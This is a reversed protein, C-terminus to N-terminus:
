RLDFSVPLTRLGWALFPRWAVEGAPRPNALRRATLHLGEAMQARALHQGICVHAGRGFALHRSTDERKPDFGLPCSFVGPDRGSLSNALFLSTGAPFEIGEYEFPEVVTRFVTPTSTHRFAEDVVKACTAVDEACADWQEPHELLLHMTFTLSNKTTDYGAAFLVILLHRLEVADIDGAHHTAILADLLGPEGPAGHQERETILADCFDWLLQYGELLEPLMSRDMSLVGAQTDLAHRINLVQQDDTGLLGCMVSIPFLSAFEAFDFTGRPAFEDLLGSIRERMLPRVANVKKPTFAHNVSSRIRSHKDGSIALLMENMFRGWPTDQAGYFSAVPGFMPRLQQDMVLLDRVAQYGFVVYGSQCRGLWPHQKRAAELFPQPDNTFAPDEVPVDPLALEPALTM